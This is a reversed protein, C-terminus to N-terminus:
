SPQTITIALTGACGLRGNCAGGVALADRHFADVAERSPAGFALHFGAGPLSADARLKLCLLDEDEVHGYGIAQDDESVRRVALAGLAADDFVAAHAPDRMGLWLHHLMTTHETHSATRLTAGFRCFADSAWANSHRM